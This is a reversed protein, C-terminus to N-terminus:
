SLADMLEFLAAACKFEETNPVTNEMINRAILKMQQPNHKELIKALQKAKLEINTM